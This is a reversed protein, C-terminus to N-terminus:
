IFVRLVPDIPLNQHGFFDCIQIKLWIPLLHHQQSILNQVKAFPTVQHGIKSRIFHSRQRCHVENSNLFIFHDGAAGSSTPQPSTSITPPFSARFFDGRLLHSGAPLQVGSTSYLNVGVVGGVGGLAWGQVLRLRNCGWGQPSGGEGDGPCM